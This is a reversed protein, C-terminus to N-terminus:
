NKRACGTLQRCFDGIRSPIEHPNSVREMEAVIASGVVAGDSIKWIARVQEPSSIGFGVAIPLSTHKRVLQITPLITDSLQQQAGTVGARSVVYVFGKSCAAIGAIREENSTPAALFITDLTNAEMASCYAESEEPTIDTVLIGDVGASRADDAFTVLGYQFIPNYYSFMMLPVNSTRRISKVANLYDSLKYQHQLSREAARQITPGDAVPDSFPIGLEIIHSGARELEPVLRITTELDPDGAMIFPIFAKEDRSKLERFMDVIRRTM